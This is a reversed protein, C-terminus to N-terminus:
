RRRHIRRIARCTPNRDCAWTIALAGGAVVFPIITAALASYPKEGPVRVRVVVVYRKTPHYYYIKV